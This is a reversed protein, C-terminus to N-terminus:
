IGPFTQIHIYRNALLYWLESFVLYSFSLFNIVKVNHSTEEKSMSM